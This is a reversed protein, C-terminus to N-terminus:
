MITFQGQPLFIHILCMLFVTMTHFVEHHGYSYRTHASTVISFDSFRRFITHDCHVTMKLLLFMTFLRLYLIINNLFIFHPPTSPLLHFIGMIM